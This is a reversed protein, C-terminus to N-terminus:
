CQRSIGLESITTQEHGHRVLWHVSLWVLAGSQGCWIGM